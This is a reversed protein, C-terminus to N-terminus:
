FIICIIKALISEAVFSAKTHLYLRLVVHGLTAVSTITRTVSPALNLVVYRHAVVVNLKMGNGVAVHIPITANKVWRKAHYTKLSFCIVKFSSNQIFLHPSHRSLTPKLTLPFLAYWTYKKSSRCEISVVSGRLSTVPENNDEQAHAYVGNNATLALLLVKALLLLKMNM